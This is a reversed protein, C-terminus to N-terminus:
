TVDSVARALTNRPHEGLGSARLLEHVSAAETADMDQSLAGHVTEFWALQWTSSRHVLLAVVRRGALNTVDYLWSDPGTRTAGNITEDNITM